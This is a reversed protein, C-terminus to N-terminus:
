WTTSRTGETEALLLLREFQRATLPTVSLRSQRFLPMDALTQDAKMAQLSVPKKLPKAPVLDVSSWDGEQATPDPYPERDVRALGVVEKQAGSHYYLVLDGKKMARLNNRAQFNRIGTWETRGDKVLDDWSYAEPEQKVLWYNPPMCPLKLSLPSCCCDPFHSFPTALTPEGSALWAFVM